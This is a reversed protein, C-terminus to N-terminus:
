PGADEGGGGDVDGADPGADAPVGADTRPGGDLAGGSTCAFDDQCDDDDCDVADDGDDDVGDDCTDEPGVWLALWEHGAILGMGLDLAGGAIAVRAHRENELDHVVGGLLLAGEAFFGSYGGLLDDGHPRDLASLDFDGTASLLTIGMELAPGVVFADFSVDITHVVDNPETIHLKASGFHGGATAAFGFTTMDSLSAKKVPIDALPGNADDCATVLSFALMPLALARPVAPM